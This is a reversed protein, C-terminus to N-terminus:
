PSFAKDGLFKVQAKINRAKFQLKWSQSNHFLLDLVINEEERSPVLMRGPRQQFDFKHLFRGEKDQSSSILTKVVEM